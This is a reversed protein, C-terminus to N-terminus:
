LDLANRDIRSKDKERRRCHPPVMGETLSEVVLVAGLADTVWNPCERDRRTWAKPSVLM